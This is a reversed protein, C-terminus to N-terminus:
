KPSECGILREPNKPHAPSIVKKIAINIEQGILRESNKPHAPSIIVKDIVFTIEKVILHGFVTLTPSSQMFSYKFPQLNCLNQFPFFSLPM